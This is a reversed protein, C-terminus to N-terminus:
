VTTAFFILDFGEDGDQTAPVIEYRRHKVANMIAIREASSVAGANTAMALLTTLETQLGTPDHAVVKEAEAKHRYWVKWLEKPKAQLSATGKVLSARLEAGKLYSANWTSHAKCKDCTWRSQPNLHLNLLTRLDNETTDRKSHNVLVPHGSLKGIVTAGGGTLFGMMDEDSVTVVHELDYREGCAINRCV